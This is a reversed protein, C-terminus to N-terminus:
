ILTKRTPGKVQAASSFFFSLNPQHLAPIYAGCTKQLVLEKKTQVMECWPCIIKWISSQLLNHLFTWAFRNNCWQIQLINQLCDRQLTQQLHYDVRITWNKLTRHSLSYIHRGNSPLQQGPVHVTFHWLFTQSTCLLCLNCTAASMSLRNSDHSHYKNVWHSEAEPVEYPFRELGSVVGKWIKFVEPPEVYISRPLLTQLQSNEQTNHRTVSVLQCGCPALCLLLNQSLCQVTLALNIYGYDNDNYAM